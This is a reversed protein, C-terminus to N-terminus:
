FKLGTVEVVRGECHNHEKLTKRLASVENLGQLSSSEWCILATRLYVMAKVNALKPDDKVTVEFMKVIKPDEYTDAKQLYDELEKYTFEKM